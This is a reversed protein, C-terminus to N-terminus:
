VQLITASIAAHDSVGFHLEVDRATYAPTTFLGDVMKDDFDRPRIMGNRHLNIDISTNYHAPINDTYRSALHAFIEGHRPANFDGCLVFEEQTELLRIMEKLDRRQLDHPNGDPTWTFHTTIIPFFNDEKEIVCRLLLADNTITAHVLSERARAMSGAYYDIQTSQIHLQTFIGLGVMVGDTDALDSPHLGMPAYVCKMLLKSELESIDCECLEQICVVELKRELLFPIIRDLHKSREINVSVLQIEAM